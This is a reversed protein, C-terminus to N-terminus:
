VGVVKGFTELFADNGNKERPKARGDENEMANVINEWKRLGNKSRTRLSMLSVANKQWFGDEQVFELISFVQDHTLGDIRVLKNVEAAWEEPRAKVTTSVTAAWQSWHNAVAKDEDSFQIATKKPLNKPPSIVKGNPFPNPNPNLNPMEPMTQCRKADNPMGSADPSKPAEKKKKWRSEANKRQRISFKLLGEIQSKNGRIEFIDEDRRDVYGARILADSFKDESMEVDACGWLYLERASAESKMEAQSEHWIYVMTGLAASRDKKLLAALRDLRPDGFAHDELNLRAM